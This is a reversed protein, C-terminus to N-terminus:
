LGWLGEEALRAHRPPRLVAAGHHLVHDDEHAIRLRGPQQRVQVLVDAVVAAAATPTYATQTDTIHSVRRAYRVYMSLTHRAVVCFLVVGGVFKLRWFLLM